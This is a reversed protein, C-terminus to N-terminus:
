VLAEKRPRYWSKLANGERVWRPWSEDVDVPILKKGDVHLGTEYCEALRERWGMDAIEPHCFADLKEEAEPPHGALRLHWGADPLDPLYHCRATRMDAFNTIDKVRGAVTGWWPDPHQWDLAFCYLVQRFRVFGRPRVWRAALATPIEDLDGHLM